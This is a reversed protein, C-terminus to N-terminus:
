KKEQAAQKVIAALVFLKGDPMAVDGHMWSDLLKESVGMRGTFEDQGVLEVAKRLLDQKEAQSM